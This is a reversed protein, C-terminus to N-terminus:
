TLAAVAAYAMAGSVYAYFCHISGLSLKVQEDDHSIVKDDGVIVRPPCM